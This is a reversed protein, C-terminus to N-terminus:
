DGRMALLIQKQYKETSYEQADLNDINTTGDDLRTDVMKKSDWLADTFAGITNTCHRLIRYRDRAMLTSYFAIRDNVSGKIANYIPVGINATALANKLGRILVQEASDCYIGAINYGCDLQRRVFKVFENALEIPDIKKKSHYEDLTIIQKFGNIFGTSNFAHASENGGFDVGINVFQVAPADDIIYREPNDAFARYIVGEASVWLGRIFRDYFVGVYEKKLNDVYSKDLFTNDDILFKLVLMDLKDEREIYKKKLWHNPNDPNTTSILKAGTESLRSLLMSFFDETFLTLEDCYAGQLTMGRIKSEARADSVGELYILRGFLKGEKKSLSYTFNDEGVLSVLLDLCNRKLSTLTKATMLYNGDKPSTAVWFAWLVLSIWTKGSRVSGELLNIRKLGNQQWLRMLNLQKPTYIKSM